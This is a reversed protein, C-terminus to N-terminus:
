QGLTKAIHLLSKNERDGFAILFSNEQDNSRRIKNGEKAGSQTLASLVMPKLEALEANGTAQLQKRM